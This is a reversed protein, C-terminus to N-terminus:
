VGFSAAAWAAKLRRSPFEVVEAGDEPVAGTAELELSVDAHFTGM